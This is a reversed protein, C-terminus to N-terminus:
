YFGRPIKKSFIIIINYLDDWKKNEKEVLAVKKQRNWSKLEKERTIAKKIDTFYEYYVLRTVHYKKTFGEHLGGRHQLVRRVLDNTVGVYLVRSLSSLIYVYYNHQRPLKM